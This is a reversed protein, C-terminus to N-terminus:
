CSVDFAQVFDLYDFFDVSNDGNFDASPNEIDFAAVFDLYDFFDVSGDRNFDAPCSTSCALVAFMSAPTNDAHTFDGAVALSGDPLVVVDNVNVDPSIFATPANPNTLGAGFATWSSGNWLALDRAPTAPSGVGGFRGGIVINGNALVEISRVVGITQNTSGDLPPSIGGAFPAWSQGNFRMLGPFQPGNPNSTSGGALLDGNPLVAIAGVFRNEPTSPLAIWQSGDWEAIGNVPQGGATDFFGGVLINGNPRFAICAVSALGTTAQLGTGLGVWSSGNWRAINNVPLGNSQNFTGGAIIDGNPALGLAYIQGPLQGQLLAGMPSWSTGNWRKITQFDNIGVVLDGNPLTLGTWVTGNLNPQPGPEFSRWQGDTERVAVGASATGGVTDFAGFAFLRGDAALSLANIGAWQGGSQYYFNNSYDFGNGLPQFENGVLEGIGRLAVSRDNYPSAAFIRGNSLTVIPAFDTGDLTFGFFESGTLATWTSNGSLKAYRPPQAGITVAGQVLLDGTGTLGLGLVIEIQVNANTHGAAWASGTWRALGPSAVTGATTFDGGVYLQGNRVVADYATGDLGAGMAAWTTGTWRAVRNRAVGNIEEFGGSAILSGNPLVNLSRIPTPDVNSFFKNGTAGLQTWTSTQPNWTAVVAQYDPDVLLESYGGAVIRGDPLLTLATVNDFPGNFESGMPSWANTAPDFMAVGAAAFNGGAGAFGGGVVVRNDPLVLLAYVGPVEQLPQLGGGVDGWERGDWTAIGNVIKDGARAFFGGVLLVEPAPGAGDRDWPVASWVQGQIGTRGTLATWDPDSCLQASASSGALAVLAFAVAGKCGRLRQSSKM